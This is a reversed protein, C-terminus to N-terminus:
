RRSRKEPRQALYSLARLLFFAATAVALFGYTVPTDLFKRMTSGGRLSEIVETATNYPGHILSDQPRVGDTINLAVFGSCARLLTEKDMDAAKMNFLRGEYPEWTDYINAEQQEKETM